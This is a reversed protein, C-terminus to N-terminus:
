ESEKLAYIEADADEESFNLYLMLMGKFRGGLKENGDELKAVEKGILQLVEHWDSDEWSLTILKASMVKDREVLSILDKPM